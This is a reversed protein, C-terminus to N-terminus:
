RPKVKKSNLAPEKLEEVERTTLYRWQRAKLNDLRLSGIRIRLIRVVPLGLQRCTERIQRKRGEGMIVRVWAGKGQAGEFRVNAPASKYGDELIIGRRWAELQAEDPRKALLVRYEKEYDYDCSV